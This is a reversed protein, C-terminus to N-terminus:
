MAGMVEDLVDGGADLFTDKPEEYGKHRNPNRKEGKKNLDQKNNEDYKDNNDDDLGRRSAPPKLRTM